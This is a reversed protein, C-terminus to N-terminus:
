ICAGFREKIQKRVAKVTSFVKHRDVGAYEAVDDAKAKHIAKMLFIFCDREPLSYIFKMVDKLFIYKMSVEEASKCIPLFANDICDSLSYFKVTASRIKFIEHRLCTTIYSIAEKENKPLSKKYKMVNCFTNHVADEAESAFNGLHRKAYKVMVDRNEKYIKEILPNPDNDDFTRLIM